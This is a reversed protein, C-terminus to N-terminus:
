WRKSTSIVLTQFHSQLPIELKIQRYNQANKANQWLVMLGISFRLQYDSEGQLEPNYVGINSNNKIILITNSPNFSIMMM